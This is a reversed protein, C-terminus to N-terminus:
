VKKSASPWGRSPEVEHIPDLLLLAQMDDFLELEPNQLPENSSSLQVETTTQSSVRILEQQELKAIFAPILENADELRAELQLTISSVSHHTVVLSWILAASGRLSFYLGNKFDIVMAEGDLVEAAVQPSNLEFIEM